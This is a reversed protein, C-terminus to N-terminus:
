DLDVGMFSMRAGRFGWLSHADIETETELAWSM